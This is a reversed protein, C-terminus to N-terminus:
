GAITHAEDAIGHGRDDGLVLGGGAIREVEDFDVVLDQRGTRRREFRVLVGRRADVIVSFFSVDVLPDRELEAVGLLRKRSRVPDELVDEKKLSVGVQGDLLVGRDGSGILVPLQRDPRRGLHGMVQVSGEGACQRQRRRVDAHDGAWVAAAEAPLGVGEIVLDHDRLRGHDESTRHLDRQRPFLDEVAVAAAMGHQHTELRADLIVARDGRHVQLCEDVAPSVARVAHRRRKIRASELGHGIANGTVPEFRAPHEGVLRRAARLAPVPRGLRTEALFDLEVLDRFGQREVWGLKAEFDDLLRVRDGRVVHVDLRDTKGIADLADDPAGVPRVAEALQGLPLAQTESARGVQRPRPQRNVPVLERMGADLQLEVAAAAHGNKAAGGFDALSRVVHQDVDDGLDEADLREVDATDGSVGVQRRDIQPAVRAADGQHHSVGRDLRRVARAVQQRLRRRLFQVNGLIAEDKGVAAHEVGFVRVFAHGELLRDYQGLGLESREPGGAGVRRRARGGAVFASTDAGRRRIRVGRAHDLHVDIRRRAPDVNRLDPDGVVYSARQIRHQRAALDFARDVHAQALRQHFLLREPAQRFSQRVRQHM